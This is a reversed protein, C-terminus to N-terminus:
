ISDFPAQNDDADVRGLAQQVVDVGVKESWAALVKQTVAGPVENGLTLGNLTAVPSLCFRTGSVFAENCLYVDHSCYNGEDVPMGLSEALDVVTQTSIGPLVESRDPLKIRGDCVFMFNAHRCETIDGKSDTRLYFTEQEAEDPWSSSAQPPVAYTDPTIVRVGRVYSHAFTTFDIFQCYIAVNVGSPGAVPPTPRAGVVQGVIFDDNAELLPRNTELVKLTVSEMQELSMGPDIHAFDLSQYLRELHERLKFVAGKFTREADYVGGGQESEIKSMENLAQSHPIFRGNLYTTLERTTSMERTRGPAQAPRGM